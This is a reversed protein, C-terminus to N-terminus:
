NQTYDSRRIQISRNMLINYHPYFRTFGEDGNSTATLVDTISDVEM